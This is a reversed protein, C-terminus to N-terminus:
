RFDDAHDRTWQAFDRAPEGTVAESTPGFVESSGEALMDLVASPMFKAAIDHPLEEVKLERGIAEGILEVQRRQTLHESGDILIKSGDLKSGTLGMLVVDAIDWDHIPNVNSDPYPVRVTGETKISEAWWLANTAFMAPRVFVWTFGAKELAQEALLHERGIYNDMPDPMATAASSLLVVKSVGAAEAAAVFNEIGETAAYMFVRDVGALAEPLTEPKSFDVLVPTVGAPLKTNEPDRSAARVTEGASLLQDIVRRALNGRAGTVLITM